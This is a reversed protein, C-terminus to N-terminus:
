RRTREKNGNGSPEAGRKFECDKCLCMKDHKTKDPTAGCCNCRDMFATGCDTCCWMLGTWYIM